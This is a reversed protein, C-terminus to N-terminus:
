CTDYGMKMMTLGLKHNIQAILEPTFEDRWADIQGRRLFRGRKGIEGPFSEAGNKKEDNSMAEFSGRKVAHDLLQESRNLGSFQNVKDLVARRDAILDEYRVVIVLQRQQRTLWQEVHDDWRQLHPEFDRICGHTLYENVFWQMSINKKDRVTCYHHYYSLIVARPDRVIYITKPYLNPHVPWENRFLRPNEIDGHKTIAIDNGHITPIFRGVTKMTVADSNECQQLIALMYALWTNGSKPHGIVFVDTQRLHNAFVYKKRYRDLWNRASQYIVKAPQLHQKVSTITPSLQSM